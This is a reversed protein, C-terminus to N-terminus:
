AVLLCWTVATAGAAGASAAGSAAIAAADGGEVTGLVRSQPVASRTFANVFNALLHCNILTEYSDPLATLKDNRPTVIQM